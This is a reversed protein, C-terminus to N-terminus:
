KAFGRNALTKATLDAPNQIDVYTIADELYCFRLFNGLEGRRLILVPEAELPVVLCQYMYYGPTQYGSLYLINEPTHTVLVDLGEVRMRARVRDLRQRYEAVDFALEKEMRFDTM